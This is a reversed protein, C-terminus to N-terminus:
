TSYFLDMDFNSIFEIMLEAKRIGRIFVKDNKLEDNTKLKQISDNMKDIINKM